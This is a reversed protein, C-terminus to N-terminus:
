RSDTYLRFRHVIDQEGIQMCIMDIRIFTIIPRYNPFFQQRDLESRLSVSIECLYPSMSGDRIRGRITPYDSSESVLKEWVNSDFTVKM